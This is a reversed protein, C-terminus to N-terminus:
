MHAPVVSTSANNSSRKSKTFRFFAIVVVLVSGVGLLFPGVFGYTAAAGGVPRTRSQGERFLLKQEGVTEATRKAPWTITPVYDSVNVQLFDLNHCVPTQGVVKSYKFLQNGEVRKPLGM